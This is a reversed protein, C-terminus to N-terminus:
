AQESPYQKLVFWCCHPHAQNHLHKTKM